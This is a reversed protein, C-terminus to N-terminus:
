KKINNKNTKKKISDKELNNEKRRNNVNKIM